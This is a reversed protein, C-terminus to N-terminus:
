LKEKKRANLDIEVRPPLIEEDEDEDEDEDEHKHPPM